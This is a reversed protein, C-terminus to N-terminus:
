KLTCLVALCERSDRLLVFSSFGVIHSLIRKLLPQARISYNFYNEKLITLGSLRALDRLEAITFEHHHGIFPVESHFIEEITSLPSNGLLFRIRRPLYAINPVELYIMGDPKLLGTVNQMFCKLSHPYHELVAMVTVVDFRNPASIDPEFPDYDLVQVGRSAIFEFLGDFAGGYYRLSETMTVEYGLDALMISFTGWFGGVDCVARRNEDQAFGLYAKYFRISSARLYSDFDFRSPHWGFSHTALLTQMEPTWHGIVEGVVAQYRQDFDKFSLPKM